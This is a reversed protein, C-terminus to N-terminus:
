RKGMRAIEAELETVTMETAPKESGHVVEQLRGIVGISELLTRAAGARAAAAAKPDQAIDLLAAQAVRRVVEAPALSDSKSRATM